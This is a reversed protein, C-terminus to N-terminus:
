LAAVIVGTAIGILFGLLFVGRIAIAEHKM